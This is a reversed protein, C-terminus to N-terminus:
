INDIIHEITINESEKGCSVTYASLINGRINNPVYAVIGDKIVIESISSTNATNVMTCGNFSYMLSTNSTKINKPTMMSIFAELKERDKSIVRVNVTAYSNKTKATIVANGKSVATIFGNDVKVVKDDSTDWTVADSTYSEIYTKQGEVITISKESLSIENNKAKTTTTKSSEKICNCKSDLKYGSKCTKECIEIVENWRASLKIDSMVPENFNYLQEGLYWGGFAYGNKTPEIPMTATSGEIVVQQKVSTGGNSDFSVFYRNAVKEQECGCLAFIIGILVMLLYSRKM